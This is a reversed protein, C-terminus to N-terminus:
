YMLINESVKWSKASAPVEVYLNTSRFIRSTIISTFENFVILQKKLGNLRHFKHM